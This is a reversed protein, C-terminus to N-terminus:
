MGSATSPSARSCKTTASRLGPTTSARPTSSASVSTESIIMTPPPSPSSSARCEDRKCVKGRPKATRCGTVRSPSRTRVCLGSGANGSAGKFACGFLLMTLRRLLDRGIPPASSGDPTPTGRQPRPREEGCQALVTPATGPMVLPSTAVLSQAHTVGIVDQPYRLCRAGGLDFTSEAPLRLLQMRVGVLVVRPRGRAKGLQVSSVFNQALRVPALGEIAALDVGVALRTELAKLTEAGPAPRAAAKAPFANKFREAPSAVAKLLGAPAAASKAAEAAELINQLLRKPTGRTGPLRPTELELLLVKTDAAVDSGRQGDGQQFRGLTRVLTHLQGGAPLDVHLDRGPQVVALGDPQFPLPGGASAATSAIKQDDDRDRRM